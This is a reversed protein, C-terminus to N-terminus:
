RAPDARLPTPDAPARMISWALEADIAQDPGVVACGPEARCRHVAARINDAPTPPVVPTDSGFWVLDRPDRGASKAADVLDRLPFARDARHPVLRHIAEIDTLLHCPQVSAVVGLGAFRPVDAEDIFQAHEIRLRCRRTAPVREFADLVQRVAADGIAHTAIDFGESHARAFHADLQADTFLPTGRPHARIPDAYTHLMAATRSNVTGDTFLKLGGFRIRPSRPAAAFWTRLADFKEPIAHLVVTLRLADAEDLARLAEALRVSAMMDHVEVFGQAVLDDQATRVHALYQADTLAAMAALVRKYASELVVGTPAGTADREVIGGPPDATDATIGAHAMARTSISASHFDFSAVMVPRNGVVEDLEIASPFRREPWSEIRAGRAIIWAGEDAATKAQAIRDLCDALDICDHLHIAGLNEGHEALHLHADRLGTRQPAASM